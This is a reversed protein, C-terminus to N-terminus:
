DVEHVPCGGGGVGGRVPIKSFRGFCGWFVGIKKAGEARLRVKYGTIVVTPNSIFNM